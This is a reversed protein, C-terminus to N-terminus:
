NTKLNFGWTDTTMHCPKCLTRGNDIAFRLEPYRSFPKIHDAQLSKGKRGCWVCTYNDRKFVAERWLRYELSSRIGANITTIGGKWNPAKDGKKAISMKIRTEESVIRGKAADGIKRKWENSFEKRKKGKNIYGFGQTKARLSQEKKWQESKPKGKKWM